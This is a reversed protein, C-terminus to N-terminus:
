DKRLVNQASNSPDALRDELAGAFAENAKPDLLGVSQSNHTLESTIAGRMREQEQQSKVQKWGKREICRNMDTM